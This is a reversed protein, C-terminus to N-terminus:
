KWIIIKDRVIFSVFSTLIYYKIRLRLITKMRGAHNKKTHEIKAFSTLVVFNTTAFYLKRSKRDQIELLRSSSFFQVARFCLYGICQQLLYNSYRTTFNTYISWDTRLRLLFFSSFHPFNEMWRLITWTCSHLYKKSTSNFFNETWKYLTECVFKRNTHLNLEGGTM